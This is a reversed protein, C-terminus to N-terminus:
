FIVILFKSKKILKIIRLVKIPRFAKTHSGITIHPFWNTMYFAIISLVIVLFDFINWAETFYYFDFAFLKLCFEFFFVFFFINNVLEEYSDYEWGYFRVCMSLVNLWVCALIFNEFRESNVLDYVKARLDSSSPKKIRTIPHLKLLIM